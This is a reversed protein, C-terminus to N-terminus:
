PKKVPTQLERVLADTVYHPGDFLYTSLGQYAALQENLEDRTASRFGTKAVPRFAEVIMSVRAKGFRQSLVDAYMRAVPATRAHVGVGDQFLLGVDEPLWSALWQALPEAGINASDYVSVWLPRPLSSLLPALQKADNWSSDIEVPFYWGVVNLPTPLKALRVSHAILNSVDARAATEDFRGALGVIVEQAWPEAAIRSWDPLRPATPQETDAVFSTGDVSLWQILLRKAGIDQWNGRIDVSENDLQWVIGEVLAPTPQPSLVQAFATSPMTMAASFCFAVVGMLRTLAQRPATTLLIPWASQPSVHCSPM